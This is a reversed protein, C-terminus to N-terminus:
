NVWGERMSGGAFRTPYRPSRHDSRLQWPRKMGESAM